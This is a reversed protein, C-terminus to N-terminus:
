LVEVEVSLDKCRRVVRQVWLEPVAPDYDRMTELDWFEHFSLEKPQVERFRRARWKPTRSGHNGHSELVADVIHRLAQRASLVASEVDQAALQGLADEVSADAEALSRSTICARFAGHDLERRREEVWGTGSLPICTLLRELFLEEADVLTSPGAGPSEFRDWTVKAFMQDVQDESWYKIEWRRGDVYFSAGSVIGPRLPVAITRADPSEWPSCTIINFDYDSNDNAWGRAFSGVCCVAVHDDPLLGRHELEALVGTFDVTM